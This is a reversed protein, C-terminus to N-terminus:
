QPPGALLVPCQWRNAHRPESRNHLGRPSGPQRRRHLNRWCTQGASGSGMSSKTLLCLHEPAYSNALEVALKLDSVVGIVGNDRLSQSAIECRDLEAVQTTLEVVVKDALSQSDTLLIASAM